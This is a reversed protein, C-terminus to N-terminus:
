RRERTIWFVYALLLVGAVIQSMVKRKPHFMARLEEDSLHGPCLQALRREAPTMTM